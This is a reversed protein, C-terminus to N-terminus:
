GTPPEEWKRREKKGKREDKSPIKIDVGSQM